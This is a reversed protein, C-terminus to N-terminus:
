IKMNLKINIKGNYQISSYMSNLFNAFFYKKLSIFNIGKVNFKIFCLIFLYLLRDKKTTIHRTKDFINVNYFSIKIIYKIQIFNNIICM